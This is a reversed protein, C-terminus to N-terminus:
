RATARLIRKRSEPITSIEVGTFVHLTNLARDIVAHDSVWGGMALYTRLLSPIQRLAKASVKADPLDVTETAKRGPAWREPALHRARLLALAQHHLAPDCGAFSSCGFLMGVGRGDVIRTMAAWAVRVIEPDAHDPHLCFRGLELLPKDYRQLRALDYFQAAYCRGIGTGNPIFLLRYCAVLTGSDQEEVLIHDCDADYADVDRGGAQGAFALARLRQAAEIQAPQEARRVQYRGKAFLLM